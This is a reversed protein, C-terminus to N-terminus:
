VRKKYKLEKFSIKVLTGNSNDIEISGDLQRTSLNKVLSLGLSNTDKIDKSFGIGNDGVILLLNKGQDCSFRISIEGKRNDPFAYKLSNTILENIILGCPTATEINLNAEDCKVNLTINAATVSYTSFLSEALEEIYEAFNIKSLSISQYLKEHILAMSAIRNQSDQFKALIDIDEIYRTQSELLSSVISLNNKVRHHIERLLVEKEHLSEKIVKNAETLEATRELVKEELNVRYIALEIELHKKDTIDRLSGVFGSPSNSDDMFLSIVMDAIFHEGNKRRHTVEGNFSGKENLSEMINKVAESNNPLLMSAHRGIVEELSYGFVNRAAQNFEIINSDKDVVIIMDMTCDIIGQSYRQAKNLQQELDKRSSIDHAICMLYQVGGIDSYIVSSSFLVPFNRQGKTIFSREVNIIREKKILYRMWGQTSLLDSIDIVLEIPKGILESDQYGLINCAFPNIKLILGDPSIIILLSNLNSIISETYKLNIKTEEHTIRLEDNLKTLDATYEEMLNELHYHYDSQEEYSKRVQEEAKKRETVDRFFSIMYTQSNITIVSTKIDAYFIAGDKRQIPINEALATKGGAHRNFEELIWPLDKKPHIDMPNLSLFEEEEVGIMRYMEPNGMIFNKIQPDVIIIGESAHTFIERFIDEKM